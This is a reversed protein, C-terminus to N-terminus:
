ARFEQAVRKANSAGYMIPGPIQYSNPADYRYIDFGFLNPNDYRYIDAAVIGSNALNDTGSGTVEINGCQMYFEPVGEHAKHLAILENRLIYRGPAISAPITATNVGGNQRLEDTAWHGGENAQGSILGAEAIKTWRVTTLDVTACDGYCPAIYTLIPGRHSRAWGDPNIVHDDSTWLFSAEGGASVSAYNSSPGAGRRCIFDYSKIDLEPGEDETTFSWGIANSAPSPNWRSFGEVSVGDLTFTKLYGHAAVRSALLALSILVTRGAM